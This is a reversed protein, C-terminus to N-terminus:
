VSAIKGPASQPESALTAPRGFYAALVGVLAIAITLYPAVSPGLLSKMAPEFTPTTALSALISVVLGFAGVAHTNLSQM